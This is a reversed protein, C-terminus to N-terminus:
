ILVIEEYVTRRALGWWIVCERGWLFFLELDGTFSTDGVRM